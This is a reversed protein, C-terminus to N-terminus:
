RLLRGYFPTLSFYQGVLRHDWFKISIPRLQWSGVRVEKVGLFSGGTDMLYSARNTRYKTQNSDLFSFFDRAEAQYFVKTKLRGNRLSNEKGASSAWIYIYIYIYIYLRFSTLNYLLPERLRTASSERRRPHAGYWSTSNGINRLFMTGINQSDLL